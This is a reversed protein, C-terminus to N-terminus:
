SAAGAYEEYSLSPTRLGGWASPRLDQNKSRELALMKQYKRLHQRLEANKALGEDRQRTLSKVKRRLCQLEGAQKAYTECIEALHHASKSDKM